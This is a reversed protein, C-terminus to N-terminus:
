GYFEGAIEALLGSVYGQFSRWVEMHFTDGGTRWLLVDAKAFLTRTCMSVPFAALDLDLPCGASLILEAKPGRVELAFQRHSVDVLAHPRGELAQELRGIVTEGSSADTGILLFEDPGMWLTARGNGIEARCALEPFGVGWAPAAAVRGDARAHLVLRLAPPLTRIWETDRLAPPTRRASAPPPAASAQPAPAQATPAQESM